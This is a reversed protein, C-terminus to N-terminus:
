WHKQLFVYADPDGGIAGIRNDGGDRLSRQVREPLSASFHLGPGGQGFPRAVSIGDTDQQLNIKQRWDKLKWTLDLAWKSPWWTVSDSSANPKANSVVFGQPEAAQAKASLLFSAGVLLLFLLVDSKRYNITKIFM